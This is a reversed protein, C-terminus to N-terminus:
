RNKRQRTLIMGGAAILLLGGLVSVVLVGNMSEGTKPANDTNTNDSGTNTDDAGTNTDDSGTNTDDSGTNTDDSSSGGVANETIFVAGTVTIENAGGEALNMFDITNATARQDATIVPYASVNNYDVAIDTYLDADNVIKLAFDAGSTGSAAKFGILGADMVEQPIAYFIQNYQGTYSLKQGDASAGESMSVSTLESLTYTTEYGDSGKTSTATNAPVASMVVSGLVLAAGLVSAIGKLFKNHM